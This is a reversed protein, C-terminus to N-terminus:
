TQGPSNIHLAFGTIVVEQSCNDGYVVSGHLGWTFDITKSYLFSVPKDSGFRVILRFIAVHHQARGVPNPEERISGQVVLGVPCIRRNWCSQGIRERSGEAQHMTDVELLRNRRQVPRVTGTAASRGGSSTLQPGGTPANNGPLVGSLGTHVYTTAQLVIHSSKPLPWPLSHAELMPEPQPTQPM